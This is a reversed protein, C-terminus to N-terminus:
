LISVDKSKKGLEGVSTFAPVSPLPHREAHKTTDGSSVISEIIFTAYSAAIISFHPPPIPNPSELNRGFFSAM